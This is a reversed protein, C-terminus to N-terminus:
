ICAHLCVHELYFDFRCVVFCSLCQMSTNYCLLGQNSLRKDASVRSIQVSKKRLNNWDRMGGGRGWLEASHFRLCEDHTLFVFLSNLKASLCVCLPARKGEWSIQAQCCVTLSFCTESKCKCSCVCGSCGFQSKKEVYNLICITLFFIFIIFTRFCICFFLM